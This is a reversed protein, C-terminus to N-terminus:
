VHEERDLYSIDLNSLCNIKKIKKVHLFYDNKLNNITITNYEIKM